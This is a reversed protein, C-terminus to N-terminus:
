DDEGDHEGDGDHHGDGDHGGDHEGGNDGCDTHGDHNHDHGEEDKIQGTCKDDKDKKDKDEDKDEKDEDEFCDDDMAGKCVDDDDQTLMVTSGGEDVVVIGMENTINGVVKEINPGFVSFVGLSFVLFVSFIVAYEALAQGKLSGEFFKKM